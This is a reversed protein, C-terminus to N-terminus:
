NSIGRMQNLIDMVGVFNNCMDIFLGKSYANNNKQSLTGYANKGLNVFYGLNVNKKTAQEPFLGSLLLCSDGIYRLKIALMKGSLELSQLFETSLAPTFFNSDLMFNDLTLVVYSEVDQSLKYGCSAQAELFLVRWTFKSGNNVEEM